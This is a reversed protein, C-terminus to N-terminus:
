PTLRVTHGVTTRFWNRTFWAAAAICLIPIMPAHFRGGGFYVFHVACWYFLLSGISLILRWERLKIMQRLGIAAALLLLYYLGQTLVAAVLATDRRLENTSLVEYRLPEPDYAFLWTVKLVGRGVFAWPREKIYRAGLRFGLRDLEAERSPDGLPFLKPDPSQYGFSANPNNGIYLNIGSNTALTRAGVKDANRLMWPMTVLTMAIVAIVLRNATPFARHYVAWWYGILVVPVLLAIPRTLSALGFLLGSLLISWISRSTAALLAATLLTTFPIESLLTNVWLWHSPLVALLVLTVRAARVSVLAGALRYGLVCILLSLFLNALAGAFPTHGFMSYLGALFAPYGVPRYATPVSDICYCGTQALTAALQDYVAADSQVPLEVAILFVVRIVLAVLLWGLLFPRSEPRMVARQARKRWYQLSPNSLLVFGPLFLAVLMIRLQLLTYVHISSDTSDLGLVVLVSDFGFLALLGILVLGAGCLTRLLRM